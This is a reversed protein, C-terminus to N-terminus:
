PSTNDPDPQKRGTPTFFELRSVRKGLGNLESHVSTIFDTLKGAMENQSLTLRHIADTNAKMQATNDKQAQVAEAKAAGEDIWKKRQRMMFRWLALLAGSVTVIVGLTYYLTEPSASAAQAAVFLAATLM